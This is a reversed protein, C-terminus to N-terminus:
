AAEEKQAPFYQQARMTPMMYLKNFYGCEPNFCCFVWGLPVDPAKAYVLAKGCGGCLEPRIGVLM